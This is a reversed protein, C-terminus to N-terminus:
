PKIQWEPEGGMMTWDHIREEVNERLAGPV